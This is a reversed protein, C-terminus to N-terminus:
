LDIDEFVLKNEKKYIIIRRFTPAYGKGNPKFYERVFANETEYNQTQKIGFYYNESNECLLDKIPEGIKKFTDSKKIKEIANYRDGESIILTFTHYYDGPSYMSKNYVLDFKDNLLIEQEEVLKKAANKTFFHDEFIVALFLTLVAVGFGLTLYKGLKPYGLKKPIFYLLFGIGIPVGVFVLILLSIFYFVDM